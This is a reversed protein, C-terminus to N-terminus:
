YGKDNDRYWCESQVNSDSTRWASSGIINTVGYATIGNQLERDEPERDMAGITTASYDGIAQVSNIAFLLGSQWM